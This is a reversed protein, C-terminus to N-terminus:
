GFFIQTVWYNGFEDLCVGSGVYTFRPHLINRRHYDSSMFEQHVLELDWGQGVNEGLIRWNKVKRGLNETHYLRGQAAMDCSHRRALSSLGDALKLVQADRIGREHNIKGAMGQEDASPAALAMSAAFVPVLLGVAAMRTRLKM